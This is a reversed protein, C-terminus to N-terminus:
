SAIRKAVHEAIEQPSLRADVAIADDPEELTHIQSDLLAPPMFHGKRKALRSLFLDRSGKLYVFHVRGGAALLERYAQRLASCAIVASQGSKLLEQIMGQLTLLWPRRDEGGLPEGRAMKLINAHPHYDDGDHFPWSLQEAIAKGVTTKGSGSVGMVILVM